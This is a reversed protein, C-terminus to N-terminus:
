LEESLLKVLKLKNESSLNSTLVDEIGALVNVPKVKEVRKKGRIVRRLGLANAVYSVTSTQWLSGNPTLFGMDNLEKAIVKIPIKLSYDDRVKKVADKNYSKISKKM